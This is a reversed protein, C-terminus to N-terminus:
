SVFWTEIILTCLHRWGCKTNTSKWITKISKAELSLGATGLKDSNYISLFSSLVSLPKVVTHSFAAAINFLLSYFCILYVNRIQIIESATILVTGIIELIRKWIFFRKFFITDSKLQQMWQLKTSNSAKM